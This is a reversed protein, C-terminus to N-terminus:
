RLMLWARITEAVSWAQSFCGRPAFPSHGDFIESISGVCAQKQHEITPLLFKLAEQKDGYIKFHSQVFYGMLWSWVTGQHYSGDRTQRDGGYHGIYEPHDCSLSRLGYPTVLKEQTRDVISKRQSRTLLAQDPNVNDPLAVVFIQNPRFSTDNQGEPTDIVDFCYEGQEYWFKSFNSQALNALDQYQKTSQAIIEGHNVMFILANYWLANIEVPKGIRPTVVWNGAKADMWTLQVGSEGGYILGDNDLKIQHRTGQIHWDIIDQLTPFIQVLFEQDDTAQYYQHIAEFFWLTADITNYQPQNNEDPFMNPLMGRDVYKAFTLLIEKAIDCRGTAITLGSLAIMTDRGWDTFWPYGAIITKGKQQNALHRDVIFQNSRYVLDKIWNPTDTLANHNIFRQILQQERQLYQQYDITHNKIPQDSAVITVSDGVNLSIEGTVALLHDDRDNLGRYTETALAFNRYWINVISWSIQNKLPKEEASLYLCPSHDDAQITVQNDSDIAIKFKEKGITVHHHSRCNVLAKLSLKIPESGQQYQYRIYATNEGQKMWIQKHLMGDAFRYHWNPTTGGLYFRDIYKYGQPAIAGDGWVNTGLEFKQQQYEITKDLKTLLLTRNVPPQLSAILLGHYSRTLAGSITSCGYGGIGNTVLWERNQASEFSPSFEVSM